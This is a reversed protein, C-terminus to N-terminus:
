GFFDQFREPLLKSMSGFYISVKGFFIHYYEIAFM